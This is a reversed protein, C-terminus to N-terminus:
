SRVPPTQPTIPCTQAALAVACGSIRGDHVTCYTIGNKSKSTDYSPRSADTVESIQVIVPGQVHGSKRSQIDDPLYGLGRKRLDLNLLLQELKHVMGPKAVDDTSLESLVQSHKSSQYTALSMTMKFNTMFCPQLNARSVSFPVLACNGCCSLSLMSPCRTPYRFRWTLTPGELLQKM